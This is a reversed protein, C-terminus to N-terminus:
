KAPIHSYSHINFGCGRILVNRHNICYSHAFLCVNPMSYSTLFSIFDIHRWDLLDTAANSIVHSTSWPLLLYLKSKTKAISKEYVTGLIYGTTKDIMKNENHQTRSLVVSNLM